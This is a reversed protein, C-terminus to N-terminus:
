RYVGKMFESYKINNRYDKIISKRKLFKIISELCQKKLLNNNNILDKNNDIINKYLNIRKNTRIIFIGNEGAIPKSIYKIPLGFINGIVKPENSKELIPHKYNILKNKIINKSLIISLDEMSKGHYNQIKNFIFNSLKEKKLINTIENKVKELPISGKYQMYSLYAIIPSGNITTFMNIDGIKRNHNFAWNIIKSDIDSFLNKINPQYYNIDNSIITLYGKKYANKIFTQKDSKLNEKMFNFANLDIKYKTKKSSKISQSIIGLKYCPKFKIKDEINIIYIGLKTELLGIKGKDNNKVFNQYDKSIKLKNSNINIWGFNEISHIFQYKKFFHDFNKNKSKLFNIYITKAIKKIKNNKINQNDKQYPILIHKIKILDPNQKKDILKVIIFNNNHIIPGYISGISANRLYEILFNPLSEENHCTDNYPVESYKSIFFDHNKIKKFQHAIKNMKQKIINIDNKSAENPFIIFILDRIAEKKLYKKNNAIYEKIENNNVIINNIKYYKKNEYEYYPIFIYDINAQSDNIWYQLIKENNNPNIGGLIMDLYENVLIQNSIIKKQFNWFKHEELTKINKQPYRELNTIYYKFKNLNFRGNKDHFSSIRNYISQNAIINWFDEDCIELGLKKAQQIILKENILSEWIQIKLFNDPINQDLQKQFNIQDIYENNYINEGNVIGIVDSNKEILSFLIKPDVIFIFFSIGIIFLILSSRKRINNLLSM